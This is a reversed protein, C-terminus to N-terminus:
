STVEPNQDRTGAKLKQNRAIARVVTSEVDELNFPKSIYAFAGMDLLKRASEAASNGSIVIVPTSPHQIQIRKLIEDGSLGPMAIDTLVVDYSEVELYALAQEARDATHCDHMDCLLDYLTERINNDDDVILLTAM